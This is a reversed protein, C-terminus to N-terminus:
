EATINNKATHSEALCLEEPAAELGFKQPELFVAEAFEEGSSFRPSASLVQEGSSVTGRCSSLAALMICFLVFLLKKM